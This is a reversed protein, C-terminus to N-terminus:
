YKKMRIDEFLKKKIEVGSRSGTFNSYATNEPKGHHKTDAHLRIYLAPLPFSAPCGLASSRFHCATLHDRFHRSNSGRRHGAPDAALHHLPPQWAGSIRGCGTLLASFDGEAIDRDLTPLAVPPRRGDDRRVDGWRIPLFYGFGGDTGTFIGYLRGPLQRHDVTGALAANKEDWLSPIDEVEIEGDILAREIEYRLIVDRRIASRM